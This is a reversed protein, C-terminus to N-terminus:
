KTHGFKRREYNCPLFCGEFSTCLHKKPLCFLGNIGMFSENSFCKVGMKFAFRARKWRKEKEYGGRGRQHFPCGHKSWLTTVKMVLKPPPSLFRFFIPGGITVHLELELRVNRVYKHLAEVCSSTGACASSSATHTLCFLDVPSTRYPLNSPVPFTLLRHDTVRLVASPLWFDLAIYIYIYIYVCQFSYLLQLWSPM